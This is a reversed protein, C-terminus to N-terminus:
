RRNLGGGGWGRKEHEKHEHIMLPSRQRLKLMIESGLINVVWKYRGSNWCRAGSQRNLPSDQNEEADGALHQSIAKM